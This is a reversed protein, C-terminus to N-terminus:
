YPGCDMGFCGHLSQLGVLRLHSDFCIHFDNGTAFFCCVLTSAPILSSGHIHYDVMWFNLDRPLHHISELPYVDQCNLNDSFNPVPEISSFKNCNISLSQKYLQMTTASAVHATVHCRV